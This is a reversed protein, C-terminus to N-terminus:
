NRGSRHQTRPRRPSPFSPKAGPVEPIADTPPSTSQSSLTASQVLEIARQTSSRESSSFHDRGITSVFRRRLAALERGLQSRELPRLPQVDAEAIRHALVEAAERLELYEGHREDGMRRRIEEEEAEPLETVPLVYADGGRQVIDEAIWELQELLQESHPLIVAGPTLTVAGLRRLSRWTAVRRTSSAAPLRWTLVLWKPSNV